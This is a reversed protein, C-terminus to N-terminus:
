DLAGDSKEVAAVVDDVSDVCFGAKEKGPAEECGGAAEVGAALASGLLGNNPPSPPVM